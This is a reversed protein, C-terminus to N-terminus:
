HLARVWKIEQLDMNTNDERRFWPRRLPRKGEPKKVLIRYASSDEGGSAM